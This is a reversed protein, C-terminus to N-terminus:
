LVGKYEHRNDRMRDWEEGLFSSLGSLKPSWVASAGELTAGLEARLKMTWDLDGSYQESKKVDLYKRHIRMALLVTQKGGNIFHM